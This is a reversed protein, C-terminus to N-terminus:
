VKTKEGDQKVTKNDKESLGTPTKTDVLNPLQLLYEDLERKKKESESKLNELKNKLLKVEDTIKKIEDQTLESTKSIKKSLTNKKKEQLNQVQNLSDLYSDHMQIIENANIKLNRKKMSKEFDSTNEKIFRIDHM